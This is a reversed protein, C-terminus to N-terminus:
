GNREPERRHAEHQTAQSSALKTQGKAQHRALTNYNQSRSPAASAAGKSKRFRARVAKLVPM